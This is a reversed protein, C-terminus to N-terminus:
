VNSLLKVSGYYRFRVSSWNAPLKHARFTLYRPGIGRGAGAIWNSLAGRIQLAGNHLSLSSSFQSRRLTYILGAPLCLLADSRAPDSSSLYSLKRWSREKGTWDSLCLGRLPSKYRAHLAQCSRTEDAHLRAYNARPQLAKRARSQLYLANSHLTSTLTICSRFERVHQILRCFSIRSQQKLLNKTYKHRNVYVFVWM